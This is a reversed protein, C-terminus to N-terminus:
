QEAEFVIGNLNVKGNGGKGLAVAGGNASPFVFLEGAVATPDGTTIAFPRILNPRCGPPLMFIPSATGVTGDKVTGRLEVMGDPRRRFQPDQHSPSFSVWGNLLAPRTWNGNGTLRRPRVSRCLAAAFAKAVAVLGDVTPHINDNYWGLATGFTDAVNATEYGQVACFRKVAARYAGGKEYNLAGVGVVGSIDNRTFVPFVGFIPVSGAAVIASAIAALNAKFAALPVQAQVDNTGILVLVRDHASLDYGGIAAAWDISSTGSIAHNAITLPGIGPLNRAMGHLLDPWALSSWAGYSISDGIVALSLPRPSQPTHGVTRVPDLMATTGSVHWSVA